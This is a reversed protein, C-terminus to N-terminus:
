IFRGRGSEQQKAEWDVDIGELEEANRVGGIDM